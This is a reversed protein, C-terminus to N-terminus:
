NEVLFLKHDNCANYLEYFGDIFVLDLAFLEGGEFIKDTLQFLGETEAETFERTTFTSDSLQLYIRNGNQEVTEFERLFFDVNNREDVLVLGAANLTEDNGLEYDLYLQFGVAGPFDELVDAQLTEDAADFINVVNASYLPSNGFDTAGSFLSTVFTVAGLGPVQGSFSHTGIENAGACYSAQGEQFDALEITSIAVEQGNLSFTLPEALQIAESQLLYSSAYNLDVSETTVQLEEVTAGVGAYTAEILRYQNDVIFFVSINHADLVLQFYSTGTFEPDQFSSVFLNEALGRSFLDQDSAAAPELILRTPDSFDSKSEFILREGEKEVYVFEFEGGFSAQDLEFFYHFVGYTEFVLELGLEADIRYPITQDYFEGEGAAVDSQIRVEGDEDFDLLMFYGGTLTNPRYLLRWGNAPTTLEERLESVAAEVREEVPPLENLDDDNCAFVLLLIPLYYTINKIM